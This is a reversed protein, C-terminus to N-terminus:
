AGHEVTLARSVASVWLGDVTQGCQRRGGRRPPTHTAAFLLKLGTVSVVASGVIGRKGQRYVADFAENRLDVPM